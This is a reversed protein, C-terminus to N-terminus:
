LSSQRPVRCQRFNVLHTIVLIASGVYMLWGVMGLYEMLLGAAFVGLGGWLWARTKPQHSAKAAYHVAILSLVLFVIDLSAWLGHGHEHGHHGAESIAEYVLPQAAFFLPVMACHIACLGSALMGVLDPKNIFSNMRSVPTSKFPLHIPLYKKKM